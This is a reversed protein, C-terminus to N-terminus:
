AQGLKLSSLANRAPGEVEEWRAEPAQSTATYLKGKSIAVRTLYHSFGSHSNECKYEITYTRIGNVEDEKSAIVQSQLYGDKDQEINAIKLGIQDPSGVDKVDNAAVDDVTLGLVWKNYPEQANVRKEFGHTPLLIMKENWTFGDPLSMGVADNGISNFPAKADAPSAGALAGVAAMSGLVVDRREVASASSDDASLAHQARATATRKSLHKQQKRFQKRRMAPGTVLAAVCAIGVAAFCAQSGSETGQSRSAAANRLGGPAIRSAAEVGLHPQLNSTVGFALAM